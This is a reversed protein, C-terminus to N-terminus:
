GQGPASHQHDYQTQAEELDGCGIRGLGPTSASTQAHVSDGMQHQLAECCNSLAASARVSLDGLWESQAFDDSLLTSRSQASLRRTM